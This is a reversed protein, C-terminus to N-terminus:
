TNHSALHIPSSPLMELIEWMVVLGGNSHTPRVCGDGEMHGLYDKDSHVNQITAQISGGANWVSVMESFTTISFYDNAQVDGLIM